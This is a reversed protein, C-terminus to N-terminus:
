GIAEEHQDVKQFDFKLIPKVYHIIYRIRKHKSM